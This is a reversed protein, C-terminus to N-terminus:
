NVEYYIWIFTMINQFQTLPPSHPKTSFHNVTQVGFKHKFGVGCNLSRPFILIKAGQNDGDVLYSYYCYM